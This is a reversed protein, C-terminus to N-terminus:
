WYWASCLAFAGGQRCLYLPCCCEWPFSKVCTPLYHTQRASHIVCFLVVVCCYHSWVECRSQGNRQQMYDTGSKVLLSHLSLGLAELDLPAELLSTRMSDIAPIHDNLNFKTL